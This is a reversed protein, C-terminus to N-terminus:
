QSQLQKMNERLKDRGTEFTKQTNEDTDAMPPNGFYEQMAFPKVQRGDKYTKDLFPVSVGQSNVASDPDRIGPNNDFASTPSRQIAPPTTPATPRQGPRSLGSAAPTSTGYTQTPETVDSGFQDPEEWDLDDPVNDTQIRQKTGTTTEYGNQTISENSTSDRGETRPTPMGNSQNDYREQSDGMRDNEGYPQKASVEPSAPQSDVPDQEPKKIFVFAFTAAFVGVYLITSTLKNM